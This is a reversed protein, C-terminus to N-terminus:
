PAEPHTQHFTQVIDPANELNAEPVWENDSAPYGKWKILYQLKWHFYQSNEIQKVEYEEAGRCLVPPPPPHAAHEIIPDPLFPHLKSVHFVPHIRMSAPLKLHIASHSIVKDVKYPGLWKDSLKKTPHDTSIDWANLWVQDGIAYEPAEAHHTDYFWAMDDTAKWLASQAEDTAKQMQTIFDSAAEITGSHVPEM